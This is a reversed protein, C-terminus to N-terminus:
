GWGAAFPKNDSYETDLLMETPSIEIVTSCILITTPDICIIYHETLLM